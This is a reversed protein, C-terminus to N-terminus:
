PLRFVVTVETQFDQPQGNHLFPRFRWQNVAQQAAATLQPDGHLVNLAQIRGDVGVQIGLVVSGQVRAERAAKPYDPEVRTVVYEMAIQQSVRLPGSQAMARDRRAAPVSPALNGSAPESALPFVVKGDKYVVLDGATGSNGGAAKSGPQTSLGVVSGAVKSDGKTSLAVGAGRAAQREQDPPSSARRWGARGVMWGLILALAVVAVLLTSTWFDSERYQNAGQPLALREEDLAHSIESTKEVIPEPLAQEESVRSAQDLGEVMDSAVKQLTALESNGFAGPRSSFVEIAGLLEENKLIPVVLISRIGLQRCLDPNVRFDTESDDCRQWELSRVCAGSLGSDRTLHSGLAPASGGTTARCVLNEERKWAIAAADARTGACIQQVIEHLVLDTALERSLSGGAQAVLHNVRQSLSESSYPGTEGSAISSPAEGSSGSPEFPPQRFIPSHAM